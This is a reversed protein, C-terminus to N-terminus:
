SNVGVYPFTDIVEIYNKEMSHALFAATVEKEATGQIVGPSVRNYACLLCGDTDVATNGGHARIGDFGPVNLLLIMQRQFRNSFNVVVEYRGAPIATKGPVKVAGKPRVVDELMYCFRADNVVFIGETWSPNYLQRLLYTQM